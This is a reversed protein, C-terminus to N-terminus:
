PAAGPRWAMGLSFTRGTTYRLRTVSGQTVHHPADLLNQADFKLTTAGTLPAQVSCDIVHREHEYADPRPLSGAEVIRRGVVNYLVTANLRGGSHTYAVGANIVYPSQGVMPRDSNTLTTVGPQIRSHMLTANAFATFPALQKRVELEIGYNTAGDANVFTLGDAGTQPVIVKEIPDDFRKAFAGISVIEGPDPYWEWRVDLNQILARLLDANGFVPLDGYVDRWYIDALERYEPRSLTQTASFRLVHDAGLSVNVGLAPLIDTHRRSVPATTGSVHTVDMDLDWREIRAGALVRVRASLPVEVQVFGAGILDSATYRGQNADASLFFASNYANADTFVLEPVQARASDTLGLNRHQYARTDSTRDTLRLAGGIKAQVPRESRGLNLTLASQLNWSSEHLDSFTRVASNHWDWWATPVPNGTSSDVATEYRIDSRDPEDRTVGSSTLSWGLTHRDGLLHEGVLQNSRVSREIFALRAVMLERADEEFYGTMQTARNEASRTYTNNFSLKTGTGVRTTLNAMGGWLVSAGGTSGTRVNQPLTSDAVGGYIAIAREEDRRVEQELAYTLSAVYGVPQGFVPDEGGISAGFSANPPAERWLPSWADRFSAVIGNVDAQTLGSLDGADRAVAPLERASGGFGLWEPGVTPARLVRQGTAASSYGLSASLTLARNLPFERTRLDVQAGTFDGPQDPTFTKSTVISQLLSSPFLDLPVIKREPEPSPLRASNLSTMTYREGLGRVLVYRGDQVSVGSVRQVAQGADSDPSRTIQEATVANIIGTASRQEALAQAVTGREQVASVTIGELQFVEVPLAIDQEVAGGEPVQLGVITKPRHGIKRAALTVAGPTVGLLSYRGDVTSQTSLTTGLVEVVAGAIPAGNAPDIVRGVIRGPAQAVLVSGPGLVALAIAGAVVFPLRAAISRRVSSM